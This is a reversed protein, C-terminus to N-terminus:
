GFLRLALAKATELKKPFVALTFKFHFCDGSETIMAKRESMWARKDLRVYWNFDEEDEHLRDAQSAVAKMQFEGLVEKFHKLFSNTQSDKKISVKAVDMMGKSLEVQEIAPIVEFPFFAKLATLVDDTKDEAKVFVTVLVEHLVKM